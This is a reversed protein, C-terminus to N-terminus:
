IQLVSKLNYCKFQYFKLELIEILNTLDDVVMVARVEDVVTLGVPKILM